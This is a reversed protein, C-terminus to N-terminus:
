LVFEKGEGATEVRRGYAEEAQISLEEVDYEPWFHTLVLREVEARRALSGAQGATMHIGALQEADRNLGSSECIFLGTGYAATELAACPSSDGSFLLSKEERRALVAYGPLSHATPIFCLELEGLCAKKVALGQLDRSAPLSEVNIVTFAGTYGALKDYVEKPAPPLFLKVPGAMSGDRRAGEIAHRLCFLDVYHDPHYHTVVVGSLSRFDVHKTLRAFSGNGAELVLNTQESQVLYGSCAEGPRPYPAWCGLVTLRM